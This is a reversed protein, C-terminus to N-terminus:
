IKQLMELLKPQAELFGRHTKNSAKRNYDSYVSCVFRELSEENPFQEKLKAKHRLGKNNNEILNSSYISSRISEPFEYFTFLSSKQQFVHSLRRYKEGYKKLFAALEKRADDANTQQYIVKMANLIEKRDSKRVLRSVARMLHVWCSQHKASPFERRVADALGALGDSVFLLVKQMGRAKMDHLMEAYNAASESPYIAYDLVEKKGDPTIGLIVHLAEKAVSDRRLNLYMADCYVVAYCPSLPRSHFAEVQESLGSAINSITAPTYYHGYMQEILEAIQRTTIGRRYLQIVTTELADMHHKREPLLPSHFLGKRDRPISLTIKGFATVVTRSYTGNRSNGSNWGESSHKEYGLFASLESQLIGNVTEEVKSRLFENASSSGQLLAVTLETILNSM